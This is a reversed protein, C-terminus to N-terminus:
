ENEKEKRLGVGNKFYNELWEDSCDKLFFYSMCRNAFKYKTLTEGQSQETWTGLYIKM